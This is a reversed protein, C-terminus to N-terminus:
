GSRRRAREAVMDCIGALVPAAAATPSTSGSSLPLSSPKATRTGVMLTESTSRVKLALRAVETSSTFLASCCAAAPGIFPMSAYLSAGSTDISKLWSACEETNSAVRVLTISPVSTLTHAQYSLSHPKELRMISVVSAHDFTDHLYQPHHVRVQAVLPDQDPFIEVYRHLFSHHRAIRADAGHEGGDTVREILVRPHEDHRVEAARLLSLFVRLQRERRDRHPERLQEALRHRQALAPDVADIACRPTGHQALVHAEELTLLLVVLLERPAHRGEAVHEHHIRERGRMAGLGAGVTDGVVSRHRAGPRQQHAPEFTEVLSITSSASSSLTSLSITPPPMALVKRAAVPTCTPRESHSVSISSTARRSMSLARARSASIGNGVSTTTPRSNAAVACASTRGTLSTRPSSIIRSMPGSVASRQLASSLAAPVMMQFPGTPTNSNSCNPSPVRTMACAIARLLANESAPPPSVRAAMSFYPTSSPM